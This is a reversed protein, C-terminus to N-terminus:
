SHLLIVNVTLNIKRNWVNKLLFKLEESAQLQSIDYIQTLINELYLGEFFHQWLHSSSGKLYM